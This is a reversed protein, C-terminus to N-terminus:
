DPIGITLAEYDFIRLSRTVKLDLSPEDEDRRESSEVLARDARVIYTCAIDLRRVISEAKTVAYTDEHPLSEHPRPALM